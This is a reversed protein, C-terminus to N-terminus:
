FYVFPESCTMSMDKSCSIGCPSILKGVCGSIFAANHEAISNKMQRPCRVIRVKRPTCICIGFECAYPHVFFSGRCRTYMKRGPGFLKFGIVPTECFSLFGSFYLYEQILVFFGDADLDQPRM